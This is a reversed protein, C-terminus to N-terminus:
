SWFAPPPLGWPLPRLQSFFPVFLFKSPPTTSCAQAQALRHCQGFGRGFPATLVGNVVWSHLRERSMAGVGVGSLGAGCLWGSPMCACACMCKACMFVSM